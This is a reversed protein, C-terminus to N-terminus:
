RAWMGSRFVPVMEGSVTEGDIDLKDSGVMFDVHELSTNAGHAALEEPSMKAGGELCIPYARGIALHCSANEDFLTNRVPTGTNVPSDVPVLAVEGLYHSGDDTEIITALLDRGQRADFEVIRGAEFRLSIGEILNGNYNLPMTSSVVGEVGARVPLSFVEETPLNPVFAIGQASVSNGGGVWVQREPLEIRLDTGPARYHLRRFRATNLYQTRENLGDLHRRWAALPDDQNVRTAAFIYDWLTMVAEVDPAQPYVQRAWARTAVSAVLWPHRLTSAAAALQAGARAGARMATAVRASDVDSYLNPDPAYLNLFAAGQEALEEMWKVRWMPIESLAEEPAMLMRMQAVEADDWQMFVHRAGMEYAKRTLQRAVPAVDEIVTPSGTSIVLTQGQQLNVGLKLLIDLYTHLREDFPRQLTM